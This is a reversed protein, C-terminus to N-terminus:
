TERVHPEREALLWWLRTLTSVLLRELVDQPLCMVIIHRSDTVDDRQACTPTHCWTAATGHRHERRYFPRDALRRWHFGLAAVAMVVNHSWFSEHRLAALASRMPRVLDGEDDRLHPPGDLYPVLGADKPSGLLSGGVGAIRPLLEHRVEHTERDIRTVEKPPKDHDVWVDGGHLREPMEAIHNAAFWAVLADVNRPPEDPRRRRRSRDYEPLYPRDRDHLAASQSESPGIYPRSRPPMALTM